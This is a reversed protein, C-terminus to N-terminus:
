KCILLLGYYDMGYKRKELSRKQRETPFGKLKIGLNFRCIM